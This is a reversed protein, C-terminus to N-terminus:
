QPKEEGGAANTKESKPGSGSRARAKASASCSGDDSRIHKEDYDSRYGDQGRTEASASSRASCNGGSSSSSSSASARASSRASASNGGNDRANFEGAKTMSVEPIMHGGLLSAAAFAGLLTVFRLPKVLRRHMESEKDHHPLSRGYM